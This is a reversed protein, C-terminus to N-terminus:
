RLDGPQIVGLERVVRLISRERRKQQRSLELIREKNAAVYRARSARGAPTQKWLRQKDRVRDPNAARWARGMAKYKEPNAARIEKMKQRQYEKRCKTEHCILRPRGNNQRTVIPDDCIM